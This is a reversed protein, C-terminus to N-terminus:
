GKCYKDMWGTIESLRKLRHKPQGSRSLEHNEGHFMVFRTDIGREKLVTYLQMAEPIWCRYDQDSHIFLTPTKAKDAYKLPSFSWLKEFGSTIDKVAMQDQVFRPGIDSCGYMSIWNSISRQTAAAAFRTTQGIIWNTMYGGYSGGTVGVKKKDIAPYKKLVLDTFKMIDEYDITGYKGRLDGFASGGGDSGFPNCFFVFYGESAWYQMEHFFTEGYVTKPGGHIDLIAPYSKSPDYDIPELVWGSITYGHNEFELRQPAAVYKGSLAAKNIHTIQKLNGDKLTYIEELKQDYMGILTIVGDKVDFTTISGEKDIITSLKNGSLKLLHTASGKTSMIYIDDGDRKTQRGGGYHCDSGVSSHCPYGFSLIKKLKGDERNVFFFDPDQNMGYTKGDASAVFFGDGSYQIDSIMLDPKEHVPTVELTDLDVTYIGEFRSIIGTFVAGTIVAESKDDSVVVSGVNFDAPTIATLKGKKADFLYLRSRKGYIFGMNNFWWPIEDFVEYDKNDDKKKFYEKRDKENALHLDPNDKPSIGVVLYRDKGLAEIGRAIVPISFAKSAEGGTTALRYFVTAGPDASDSENRKAAFLLHTDDEWSYASEKGLGTFPAAKNGSLLWISQDYGDMKANAQTVVFAASTASPNYSLSSLFRFNKFEDLGIKKM